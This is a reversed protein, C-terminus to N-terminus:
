KDEDDYCYYKEDPDEEMRKRCEESAEKLTKDGYLEKYWDPCNHKIYAPDNVCDIYGRPCTPLYGQEELIKADYYEKSDNSEFFNKFDKFKPNKLCKNCKNEDTICFKCYDM